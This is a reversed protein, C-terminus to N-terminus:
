RVRHRLQLLRSDGLTSSGDRTAATAVSGPHCLWLQLRQLALSPRVVTPHTGLQAASSQGNMHELRSQVRRGPGGRQAPVGAGLRKSERHTRVYTSHRADLGSNLSRCLDNQM